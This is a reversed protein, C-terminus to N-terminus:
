GYLKTLYDETMYKSLDMEFEHYMALKFGCLIADVPDIKKSTADKDIKILGNNQRIVANSMTFNMLPNKLYLVNGSYVEERFGSTSENLSKHSQYVEVCEYGQNSLDMMMKSSNAPDFCLTHISWNNKECFSKVYDFVQTQDVIPTNTVSLYGMEEWAEYPVKDQSTRERLKERSPIFSHTYVVYKAKGNIMLPIVFAVSTLDIKSSMDFGVYVSKGTLDYPIERVECAKWKGMDMYGNERAQVWENLCKTRFTIM